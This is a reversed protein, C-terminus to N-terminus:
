NNLEVYLEKVSHIWELKKEESLVPFVKNLLNNINELMSHKNGTVYIEKSILHQLQEASITDTETKSTESIEFDLGDFVAILRAINGNLCQGKSDAIEELFRFLLQIKTGKDVGSRTIRCWVWSTVQPYTFGFMEVSDSTDYCEYLHGIADKIVENNKKLYLVIEKNESFEFFASYFGAIIAPLNHIASDVKSISAWSKLLRISILVKNQVEPTHVNQEDLSLQKLRSTTIKEVIPQEVLQEEKTNCDDIIDFLKGRKSYKNKRFGFNKLNSNEEEAFNLVLNNLSSEEEFCRKLMFTSASAEQDGNNFDEFDKKFKNKNNTFCGGKRM